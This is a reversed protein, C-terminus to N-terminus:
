ASAKKREVVARERMRQDTLCAKAVCGEVDCTRRIHGISEVGYHAVWALRGITYPTGRVNVWARRDTWLVHGDPQPVAHHQYIERLLVATSELADAVARVVNGGAKRLYAGRQRPTLGARIGWEDEEVYANVLCATRSVCGNCVARAERIANPDRESAHFLDPDVDKPACAARSHWDSTREADPVSGTYHSM